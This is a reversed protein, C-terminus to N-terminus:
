THSVFLATDWICNQKDDHRVRFSEVGGLLGCHKGKVGVPVRSCRMHYALAATQGFRDPPHRGALGRSWDARGRQVAAAASRWMLCASRRM